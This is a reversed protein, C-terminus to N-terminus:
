ELLQRLRRAFQELSSGSDHRHNSPTSREAGGSRGVQRVLGTILLSAAAFAAVTTIDEPTGIQFTFFRRLLFTIWARQAAIVSLTVAPVVSGRLSLLVVVIMYAPITTAIDLQLWFCIWTLFALPTAGFLLEAASHWFKM